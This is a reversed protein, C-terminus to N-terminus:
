LAGKEIDAIWEHIRDDVKEPMHHYYWGRLQGDIVLRALWGTSAQIVYIDVETAPVEQSASSNQSGDTSVPSNM